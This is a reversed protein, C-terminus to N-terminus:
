KRETKIWHFKSWSKQITTVNQFSYSFTKINHKYVVCHMRNHYENNMNQIGHLWKNENYDFFFQEVMKLLLFFTLYKIYIGYLFRVHGFRFMYLIMMIISQYLKWSIFDSINVIRNVVVILFIIFVDLSSHLEWYICIEIYQNHLYTYTINFYYLRVLVIIYLKSYFDISTSLFFLSFMVNNIQISLPWSYIALFLM